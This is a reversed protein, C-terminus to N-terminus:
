RRLGPRRAPRAMQGHRTLSAKGLRGPIRERSGPPGRGARGQPPEAVGPSSAAPM